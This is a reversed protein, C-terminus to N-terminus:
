GDGTVDQIYDIKRVGDSSISGWLFTLAGGVSGSTQQETKLNLAALSYSNRVTHETGNAAYGAFPTVIFLGVFVAIVAAFFMGVFGNAFARGWRDWSHKYDHASWIFCIIAVVFIAAILGYFVM